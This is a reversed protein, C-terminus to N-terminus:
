NAPLATVTFTVANFRSSAQITVRGTDPGVTVVNSAKGATDTTSTPLQLVGSTTSWNVEVGSMANGFRDTAKAILTLQVGVLAASGDGGFAHISGVTDAALTITFTRVQSGAVANVKAFGAIAPTLYSASAKGNVDTTDFIPQLSGGGSVVSWAVPINALPSGDSNKVEVVLPQSSRDGVLITQADGSVISVSASTNPGLKNDGCAGAGSLGAAVIVIAIPRLEAISLNSM